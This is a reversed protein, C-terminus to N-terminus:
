LMSFPNNFYDKENNYVKKLVKEKSLPRKKM